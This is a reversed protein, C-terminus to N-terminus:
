DQQGRLFKEIEAALHDGSVIKPGPKSDVEHELRKVYELVESDTAIAADVREEWDSVTSDLRGPWTDVDLLEELRYLLSQQGKPNTPGSVYHPVSARISIVTIDEKDLADHIVGIIGTPGEYTPKSLGLGAALTPNTCSGQVPSPRTHPVMGVASGVTIVMETSTERAIEIISDAFTQWRLRPEVGALLLLDHPSDAGTAHYIENAPWWIEREGGPGIAVEPRTEQFDYFEEADITALLDADYRDILWRIASTASDGADFLGEFAVLM